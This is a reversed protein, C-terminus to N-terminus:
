NLRARIAKLARLGEAAVASDSDKSIWEIQAIAERDGTVALVRALGVKEDKTAKAVFQYLANRINQQRSLEILYPEAVGRYSRSNLTNVLYTLPAFEEISTNGLAVLAFAVGLRAPMEREEDFLRQLKESDAAQNLRAYGEAAAARIRDDKDEIGRDYYPRSSPDPIMALSTLAARRVRVSRSSDFVKQLDPLAERTKLLGVCEIAALQVREELDRVFSTIRPGASVDGIKQLAILAEYLVATDKTQLSQLLDPVAAKGRLIGVARAANARPEMSSGGAALKGIASVVDPRVTVWSDVVDRNERDFRSKVAASWRAVGTQVYGPVYFNVLGDTARVQIEPDNDRTAAILPDLSYQTGINVISRVCELRVDRDTDSLLPTLTQIADVGSDKLSRVAKARQKPDPSQLDQGFLFSALLLIAYPRNFM